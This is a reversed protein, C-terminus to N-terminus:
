RRVQGIAEVVDRLVGVPSDDSAACVLRGGRQEIARRWQAVHERLREKYTARVADADTEVVDQSEIGRLRLKGSFSLDRESPDLVQVLVLARPALALGALSTVATTPLDLLDSLVVVISGRRAQHALAAVSADFAAADGQLPEVAEATELRQVIREFAARGSQARLVPRAGASLWSLGVPDQGAIAVRTLAAAILAAYALKAGPAKDGRVAMSASADLCVYLARDTDTEFQRIMLRDHRLLSRRDLFRLDDGPVYPRHGGFEVGAGRRTSRHRGAFMEEAVLQSQLRLPSLKGWDIPLLASM